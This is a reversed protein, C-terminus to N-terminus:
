GYDNLHYGYHECAREFERRTEIPLSNFYEAAEQVSTNIGCMKEKFKEREFTDMSTRDLIRDIDSNCLEQKFRDNSSAGLMTAGQLGAREDPSGKSILLAKQPSCGLTGLNLMTLIMSTLIIHRM